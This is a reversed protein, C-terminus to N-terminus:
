GLGSSSRVVWLGLVNDRSGPDYVPRFSACAFIQSVGWSGGRGVRRATGPPVARLPTDYVNLCWEEINGSMDLAGVPSAGQPYLGM